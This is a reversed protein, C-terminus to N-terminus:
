DLLKKKLNSYNRKKLKLARHEQEQDCMKPIYIVIEPAIQFQIDDEWGYRHRASVFLMKYASTLM